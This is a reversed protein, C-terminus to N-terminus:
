PSYFCYKGSTNASQQLKFGMNLAILAIKMEVTLVVKCALVPNRHLFMAEVM